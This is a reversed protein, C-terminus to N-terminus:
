PLHYKEIEIIYIQWHSFKNMSFAIRVYRYDSQSAGLVRGHSQPSGGTTHAEQDGPGVTGAATEESEAGEKITEPLGSYCLIVIM